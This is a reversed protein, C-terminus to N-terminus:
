GLESILSGFYKVMPIIKGYDLRYPGVVGIVGEHGPSKFHTYLFGCPEFIAQGLEEGLLLSFPDETIPRKFIDQWYDDRDLLALLNRTLDIDYFEPFDLINAVGAHYFFDDGYSTLALTKTKEALAHTAEKVLKDFSHRHDWVRQKVSVEESIPLTEQELLNRVYYKLAMPTPVRGASKHMQRLYGLETLKVMENRITAPSFSLNYKKELNESGVAQATEIYEDIILKLIQIQRQSLNQM